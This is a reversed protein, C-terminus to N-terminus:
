LELPKWPERCELWLSFPKAKLYISGYLAGKTSLRKLTELCQAYAGMHYLWAAYAYEGEPKRRDLRRVFRSAERVAGCDLLAMVANYNLVADKPFRRAADIIIDLWESTGKLYDTSLYWLDWGTLIEPIDEYVPLVFRPNSFSPSRFRVSVVARGATPFSHIRLWDLLAPKERALTNWIYEGGLKLHLIESSREDGAYPSRCYDELVPEWSEGGALLGPSICKWAGARSLYAQLSSARARSLKQAERESGCPPVAVRLTVGQVAIRRTSTLLRVQSVFRKFDPDQADTEPEYRSSEGIFTVPVCLEVTRSGPNEKVPELVTWPFEMVQSPASSRAFAGRQSTSRLVLGKGKKWDSVALVVRVTDMWDSRPIVETFKLTGGKPLDRVSVERADGSVLGTQAYAARRGYAVVPALPVSRGGNKVSLAFVVAGAPEINWDDFHWTGSVALSDGRGEVAVDRLSWRFGQKAGDAAVPSLVLALVALLRCYPILRRM